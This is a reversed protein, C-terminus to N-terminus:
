ALDPGDLDSLTVKAQAIMSAANAIAMLTGEIVIGNESLVPSMRSLTKALEADYEALREPHSRSVDYQSAFLFRVRGSRDRLKSMYLLNVFPEGNKRFNIIPTRVSAQADGELFAHIRRRAESNDADKQLLRCNRGIVDEDAYGTLSRFKENVLVLPNDEEAAALALAINSHEFYNRLEFPISPEQM